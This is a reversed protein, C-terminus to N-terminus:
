KRLIILSGFMFILSVVIYAISFQILSSSFYFLALAEVLIFLGSYLYGNTNGKSLKYLLILNSISQIGFAVGVLVLISSANQVDAKGSFLRIIFEPFLYFIILAIIILGLTLFLANSFLNNSKKKKSEASLPFMARSIPQTGWFITKGLISAIAYYGATEPSFVMKAIIVDLSYFVIIIATIFFVPISYSYVGKTKAKIANSKIIDRLSGFSFLLAIAAGILTGLIAGYVSFGFYVLILALVLKFTSEIILNFGLSKFKKKGLMLGRSVPLLASLFVASGTMALLLYNIKLLPSLFISIFLFALFAIFSILILLNISKSFIYKLKKPNGERSSYKTIVTQISEKFVDFIYIISFLASLIGYEVVSLLRAM